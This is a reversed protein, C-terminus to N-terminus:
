HAHTSTILTIFNCTCLDHDQLLQSLTLMPNQMKTRLLQQVYPSAPGDLRM